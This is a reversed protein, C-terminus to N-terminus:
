ENFLELQLEGSIMMDGLTLLRKRVAEKQGESMPRVSTVGKERQVIFVRSKDLDLYDLLLPSHTTVFIQSRQSAELLHDYILPLAGPHVTLEPEEMGIVPLAPEQLLATLLGAVRLAGDSELDAGFWKKAKAHSTQHSFEAMLFGSTKVVRVGDIDGTLKNLAAALDRDWGNKAQQYLISVWNNGRPKMPTENSFKQPERLVDPYVSYVVMNALFEWLPKFREDGGVTTIALTQDTLNPSLNEPGIWKGERTEFQAEAGNRSLRAWERKVRYEENREGTIEFGYNAAGDALAIELDIKVNYPHGASHRRIAEIGNNNAVAGPLGMSVAERVFTLAHLANSKGGGNPGVLFNLRGPRMEVDKGLSRFNSIILKTIM